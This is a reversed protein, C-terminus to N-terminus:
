GNNVKKSQEELFSKLDEETIVYHTGIKSGKLKGERVYRQLTRISIKLMESVEKIDYVKM